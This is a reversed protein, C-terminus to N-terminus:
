RLSQYREWILVSIVKVQQYHCLIYVDAAFEDIQPRLSSREIRIYTIATPQIIRLFSEECRDRM